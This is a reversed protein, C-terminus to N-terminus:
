YNLHWNILVEGTNPNLKEIHIHNKNVDVPKVRYQYVGNQVERNIIELMFLIWM